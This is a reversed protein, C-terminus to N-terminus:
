AIAPRVVEGIRADMQDRLDRLRALAQKREAAGEDHVKRVDSLTQIIDSHVKELTAVDVVMRQNAKAINVANSKLMEANQQMFYNTADDIDNSLGAADKQEQLALAMMFARKWIPLTLTQITRFKEVLVLNNTQIMRIMPLAQLAAHHLVILDDRRKSLTQRSAELRAAKELAEPDPGQKALQEIDAGLQPLRLEAAHAYILLLDREEKVAAYMQEMTETRQILRGEIGTIDNVLSTVQQEISGFRAMMRAKGKFLASVIGGVVPARTWSNDFAKLDFSKAALVVEGLKDGMDEMDGNRTMGLLGDTLNGVDRGIEAGFSAVALPSSADISGALAHAKQSAEVPLSPLESSPVAPTAQLSLDGAPINTLANM